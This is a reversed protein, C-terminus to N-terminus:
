SGGRSETSSRESSRGRSWVYLAVATAAAANLSEVESRIPVAVARERWPAPLGEGEIGPLLGFREPFAFTGIDTGEASLPVIAPDPPLAGLSPGALLPVQLVAGGSSRLTKPHFPHASEALLIVRDVGFAVASRIVAGTNEPDQFPVLLSAGPPLGEAPDWRPIGPVELVLIPARTGFLDLERFLAPALRYVPLGGGPAAQPDKGASVLWARCRDPHRALAEATLRPGALLARDQKKIGRSGLLKRLDKFVPNDESDINRVDQDM